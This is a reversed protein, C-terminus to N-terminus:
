AELLAQGPNRTTVGLVALGAAVAAKLGAPSDELAFARNAPIKFHELAKLYPDPFPKAQECESGVIVLEFFESLGVISIMLEANERPANTVAARRLGHSEIWKCLKHLGNVPKLHQAAMRRFLAEKDDLFKKCKSEDWDPFLMTGIDDNHKGSINKSFFEENIPVGGQFGVEQLMDRFALYHLPDSDCLTGDVDFLVAELANSSPFPRMRTSDDTSTKELYTFNTTLNLARTSQLFGKHNRFQGRIWVKSKYGCFAGCKRTVTRNG